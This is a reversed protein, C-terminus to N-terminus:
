IRHRNRVNLPLRLIIRPDDRHRHRERREHFHQVGADGVDRQRVDRAIKGGADIFAGPHQTRIQDGVGHHQGYACPEGRKEAALAEVHRAHHHEADTGQHAAKRRVQSHQHEETHQLAQTASTECRGLLRNQRVCERGSFAAHRERYVCHRHHQSRGHPGRQAPPHGVM